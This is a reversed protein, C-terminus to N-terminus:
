IFLATVARVEKSTVFSGCRVRFLLWMNWLLIFFYFSCCTSTSLDPSFFSAIGLFGLTALFLLIWNGLFHPTSLNIHLAPHCATGKATAFEFVTAGVM